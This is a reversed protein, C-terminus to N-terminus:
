CPSYCSRARQVKSVIKLKARGNEFDLMVGRGQVQRYFLLSRWRQTLYRFTKIAKLCLLWLYFLVDPVSGLVKRESELIICISLGRTRAVVLGQILEM